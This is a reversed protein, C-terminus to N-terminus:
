EYKLAEAPHSMAARLAQFSVSILAVLLALGLALVFIVVGLETRYAYNQLWSRMGFYALPWALVNAIVVLLFFERCLLTTIQSVSAGLVKRIGIEKTRQEATFSALGFLGLCAVVVALIAFTRLLVGIQGEARYMWAFDEDLFRYDFPYNPIVRGWINEIAELSVTTDGPALRILMYRLEEPAVIIALPEIVEKVSKFHFNKMVGVITGDVGMFRFREGVVSEKDMLKAVEENVIFTKSHDSPHERSFSRGAVMEIKLTEIYDFDVVSQGILVQMEESKGDWDVGSSNSGINTPRADAGTVGLVHSDKVLEDKLAQYSERIDARLPIYIVHEKDWGLRKSQMYHLQKYVVTTGIILSISLVFQFVVLVRRFLAAGRGSKLSGKLVKVPQFSSLFLAPYSGAVVGTFFTIGVLGLLIGQIGSVGWSLEKEAFNSFAPLLLMTLLVAIVLAILAFIVTEGYFQRILHTKLAGVVKRMGVERARNASRATALNMFNICAIILLFVAIVSFIYVYQIAGMTKDYGFYAHLHLRTYAMLELDTRSEELKTRIFGLIKEDVQQQTASEELQVFTLISNSGFHQNTRGEKELYQYPILMDFQLYSNHPVRNLVGTVTFDHKNNVSVSKGLADEDGFYKEAIEQSIILSHPSDLATDKDGRLLPFTFMHLFSPDVARADSEFFANENYRLLMGGAWVVRTAEKIEPIEEKLAPGLPYPTVNVHYVRGSYHQNEEVRYLTSANEHFKDYSLEDLVWIAILLCCAMGIALGVINIFAYGKHKLINRLTVKIYNLIM